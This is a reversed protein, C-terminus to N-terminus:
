KTSFGYPHLRNRRDSRCSQKHLIRHDGRLFPFSRGRRKWEQVDAAAKEQGYVCNKIARIGGRKHVENPCGNGNECDGRPPSNRRTLKVSVAAPNKWIRFILKFSTGSSSRFDGFPFNPRIVLFM